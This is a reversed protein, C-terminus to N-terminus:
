QILPLLLELVDSILNVLLSVIAPIVISNFAFQHELEFFHKGQVTPEYTITSKNITILGQKMLCDAEQPINISKFTKSNSIESLKVRNNKVIIKLLKQQSKPLM